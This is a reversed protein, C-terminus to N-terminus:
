KADLAELAKWLIEAHTGNLASGHERLGRAAKAVEELKRVRDPPVAPEPQSAAYADLAKHFSTCYHSPTANHIYRKIAEVLIAPNGVHAPTPNVQPAPAAIPMPIEGDPGLCRVFDACEQPAGEARMPGTEMIILKM